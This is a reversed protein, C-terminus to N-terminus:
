IFDIYKAAEIWFPCSLSVKNTLIFGLKKFECNYRELNSHVDIIIKNIKEKIAWNEVFKILSKLVTETENDNLLKINANNSKKEYFDNNIYLYNIKIHHDNYNNKNINFDMLYIINYENNKEIHNHFICNSKWCIINHYEVLNRYNMNFYNHNVVFKNSLIPERLINFKPIDTYIDASLSLAAVMSTLTNFLHM